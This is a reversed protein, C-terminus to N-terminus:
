PMPRAVAPPRRKLGEGAIGFPRGTRRGVKGCGHPGYCGRRIRYRFVNQESVLVPGEIFPGHGFESIQPSKPWNRAPPAARAQKAGSHYSNLILDQSSYTQTAQGGSVGHPPFSFARQVCAKAARRGYYSARSVVKDSSM